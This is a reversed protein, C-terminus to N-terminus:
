EEATLKGVAPWGANIYDVIGSYGSLTHAVYRLTADSWGYTYYTKDDEPAVM